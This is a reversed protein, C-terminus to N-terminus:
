RNSSLNEARDLRLRIRGVSSLDKKREYEELAGRWLIVARKPDGIIEFTEAVDKFCDARLSSAEPTRDALELVEEAIQTAAEIDGRQALIKSLVSRFAVHSAMDDDATTSASVNVWHLADELRGQVYLAEALYAAATSLYALAGHREFFDCAQVLVAEAGAPNDARLEVMARAMDFAHADLVYGRETLMEQGETMLQRARDFEGLLGLTFGQVELITARAKVNNSVEELLAELRALVLDAPKPGFMFAIELQDISEAVAWADGAKRAHWLGKEAAQEM